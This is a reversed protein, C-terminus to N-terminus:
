VSTGDARASWLRALPWKQDSAYAQIMVHRQFGRRTGGSLNM